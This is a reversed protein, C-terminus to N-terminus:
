IASRVLPRFDSAIKSGNKWLEYGITPAAARSRRAAEAMASQDESAQIREITRVHNAGDFL